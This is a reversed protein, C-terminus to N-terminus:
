SGPAPAVEAPPASPATSGSEPSPNAASAAAPEAAALDARKKDLHSYVYDRLRLVLDGGEVMAYAPPGAAADGDGEAAKQAVIVTGIPKGAADYFSFRLDPNDLGYPSV